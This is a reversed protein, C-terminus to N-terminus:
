RDNERRKIEEELPTTKFIKRSATLYPVFFPLSMLAPKAGEWSTQVIETLDRNSGISALGITLFYMSPVLGLAFSADAAIGKLGPKELDAKWVNHKWYDRLKCFPRTTTLGISFGILRRQVFERLDTSLDIRGSNIEYFSYLPQFWSSATLTDVWYAKSKFTDSIYEGAKNITKRIDM